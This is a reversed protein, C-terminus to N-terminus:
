LLVDIYINILFATRYYFDLSILLLMYFRNHWSSFVHGFEPSTSRKHRAFMYM